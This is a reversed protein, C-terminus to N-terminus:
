HENEGALQLSQCQTLFLPTKTPRKLSFWPGILIVNKPGICIGIIFYLFIEIDSIYAGVDDISLILQISDDFVQSM